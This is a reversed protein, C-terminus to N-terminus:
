RRRRASFRDDPTEDEGATCRLVHVHLYGNDRTVVSEVGYVDRIRDPTIVGTPPGKCFIRGQDLMVIIDSFRAALNLDHMAMMVGIGKGKALGFIIELLEMQHRLDLGTNPEDLLLYQTDQVLARALWVKQAQGGSLQDMDRMALGSLNMEEIVAEVREMDRQSPRWAFYPRRGSLITDFVTVPFRFLMSQPMYTLQKAVERRPIGLIERGEVRVSGLGPKLIGAICKLLTTKGAGNPGVISVVRGKEVEADVSDLVKRGNYNFVLGTAELM